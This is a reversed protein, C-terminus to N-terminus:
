IRITFPNHNFFFGGKFPQLKPGITIPSERCIVDNVVLMTTVARAYCLLLIFPLTFCDMKCTIHNSLVNRIPQGNMVLLSFINTMTRPRTLSTYRTEWFGM